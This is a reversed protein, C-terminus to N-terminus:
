FLLALLALYEKLKKIEPGAKYEFYKQRDGADTLDFKKYKHSKTKFVPFNIDKM